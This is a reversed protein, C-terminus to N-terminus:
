ARHAAMEGIVIVQVRLGPLAIAQALHEAIYPLPGLTGIPGIRTEAREGAVQAFVVALEHAPLPHQATAAAGSRAPM